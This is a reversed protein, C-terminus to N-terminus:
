TESPAVHLDTFAGHPFQTYPQSPAMDLDMLSGHTPSHHLWTYPWSPAMGLAVAGGQSDERLHGRVPASVAAHCLM